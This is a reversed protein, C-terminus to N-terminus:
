YYKFQKHREELQKERGHQFLVSMFILPLPRLIEQRAAEMKNVKINPIQMYGGQARYVLEMSKEQECAAEFAKFDDETSFAFIYRAQIRGLDQKIGKINIVWGDISIKADFFNLMALVRKTTNEHYAAILEM